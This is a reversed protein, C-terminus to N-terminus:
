TSKMRVSRYVTDILATRVDMGLLFASEFYGSLMLSYVSLFASFLSILMFKKSAWSEALFHEFAKTINKKLNM